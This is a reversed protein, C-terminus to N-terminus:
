DDHDFGRSVLIKSIEPKANMFDYIKEVELIDEAEIDMPEFHIIFHQTM